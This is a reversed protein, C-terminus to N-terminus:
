VDTIEEKKVTIHSFTCKTIYCKNDVLENRFSREEEECTFQDLFDLLDFEQETPTQTQHPKPWEINKLSAVDTYKPRLPRCLAFTFMRNFMEPPIPTPILYCYWVKDILVPKYTIPSRFRAVRVPSELPKADSINIRATLMRKKPDSEHERQPHRLFRFEYFPSLGLLARYFRRNEEPLGNCQTRDPLKLDPIKLLIKAKMAHKENTFKSLDGQKTYNKLLYSPIYGHKIKPRSLGSKMVRHVDRIADLVDTPSTIQLEDWPCEDGDIDVQFRRFSPNICAVKLEDRAKGLLGTVRVYQQLAQEYCKHEKSCRETIFSGFGKSQRRGFNEGAFFADIWNRIVGILDKHRSFFNLKINAGPKLMTGKQPTKSDWLSGVFAMKPKDSKDGDTRKQEVYFDVVDVSSSPEVSISLRYDLSYSKEDDAKINSTEEDKQSAVVFGKYQLYDGNFAARILFRDLKPKVETARLTAGEEEAQFHFIPTMQVLTVSLTYPNPRQIVM